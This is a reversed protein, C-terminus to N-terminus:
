SILKLSMLINDIQRNVMNM